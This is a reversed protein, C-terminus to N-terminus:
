IQGNSHENIMSRLGSLNVEAKVVQGMQVSNARSSSAARRRLAKCPTASAVKVMLPPSSSFTNNLVMTIPKYTSYILLKSSSSNFAPFELNLIRAHFGVLNTFVIVGRVTKCDPTKQSGHM